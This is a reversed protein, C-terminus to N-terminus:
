KVETIKILIEFRPNKKDYEGEINLKINDFSDDEIVGAKALGDLVLKGSFNDPDRKIKNPFYHVLTVVSKKINKRPIRQKVVECFILDAWYKKQKQYEWKNTKGMFKNNSPPLEKFRITIDPRKSYEDFYLIFRNICERCYLVGEITYDNMKSADQGCHSCKKQTLLGKEILSGNM